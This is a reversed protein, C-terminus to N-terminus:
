EDDNNLWYTFLSVIVGVIIPAFLIELLTSQM